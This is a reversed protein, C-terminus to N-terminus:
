GTPDILAAAASGEPDSALVLTLGRATALWRTLSVLPAAGLAEPVEDTAPAEIGLERAAPHDLASCLLRRVAGPEIEAQALASRAADLAAALRRGAAFASATALIRARPTAGRAAADATRELLVAAGADALTAIPALRQLTPTGVDAAVALARDARGARLERLAAALVEIGATLGPAIAAAPGRIGYHISIEGVPSSPLTYAFLRPSAGAPGQALLGRYYDENTAHCGYATGLVVATRDGNWLPDEPSLAADCLAGDAAVLALGCLRDMRALKAPAAVWKSPQIPAKPGVVLSAAGTVVIDSRTQAPM